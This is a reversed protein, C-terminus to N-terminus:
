NIWIALDAFEGALRKINAHGIAIGVSTLMFSMAASDSWFDFVVRMYERTEICKSRIEEPSMKDQDFLSKIREKDEDNAEIATLTADLQDHNLARIQLKSANNLCPVFVRDDVGLTIGRTAVDGPDFGRVFLGQYTRSFLEELPLQSLSTSGCGSFELHQFSAQSKRLKNAFPEVYKDLYEAFLAHNGLGQNATYRLLFVIALNALQGETLKSATNLSEDLVIQMIDRQTHKTRDVLLDVLLEGLDKDGTKAHEKQMTYLAHQFGPDNAQRFAEPNEKSLKSLFAETVEEARAAAEQKALGALEYFNARFVDLAIQRADAYNLGQTVTIDRGAQFAAAGETATQNQDTSKSAM